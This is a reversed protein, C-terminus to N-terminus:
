GGEGKQDHGAAQQNAGPREGEGEEGRTEESGKYTTGFWRLHGTVELSHLALQTPLSVAWRWFGSGAKELMVPTLEPAQKSNYDELESVTRVTVVRVETEASDGKRVWYLAQLELPPDFVGDSKATKSM